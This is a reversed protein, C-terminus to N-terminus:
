MGASWTSVSLRSKSFALELSNESGLGDTAVSMLIISEEIGTMGPDAMDPPPVDTLEALEAEVVDPLLPVGSSPEGLLLSEPLEGTRGDDTPM